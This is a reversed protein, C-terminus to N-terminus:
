RSNTSNEGLQSYTCNDYEILKSNNGEFKVHSISCNRIPPLEGTIIKEFNFNPFQSLYATIAAGHSVILINENNLANEYIEHIKKNMRKKVTEFNEGGVDTWDVEFTTNRGIHAEETISGEFDGFSIEKFEKTRKVTLASSVIHNATEFARESNSSFAQDFHINSVILGYGLNQAQQIGTDTLPSDCWGQMRNLKNFLTQGHRVLYFNITKNM